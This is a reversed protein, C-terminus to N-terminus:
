TTVLSVIVDKEIETFLTSNNLLTLNHTCRNSAFSATM